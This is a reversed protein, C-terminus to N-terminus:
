FICLYNHRYVMGTSSRAEEAVMDDAVIQYPYGIVTDRIIGTTPSMKPCTNVMILVTKAPFLYACANLVYRNWQEYRNRGIPVTLAVGALM